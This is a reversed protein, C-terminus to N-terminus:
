FVETNLFNPSENGLLYAVHCQLNFMYRMREQSIRQPSLQLTAWDNATSLGNGIDDTVEFQHMFFECLAQTKHMSEFSAAM